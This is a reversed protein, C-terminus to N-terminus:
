KLRLKMLHKKRAVKQRRKQLQNIMRQTKNQLSEVVDGGEDTEKEEHDEEEGVEGQVKEAM